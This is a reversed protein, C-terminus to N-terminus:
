RILNRIFEGEPSQGKRYCAALLTAGRDPTSAPNVLEIDCGFLQGRLPRLILEGAKFLGGSYSVPCTGKFELGYYVAKLIDALEEAADEYAELAARDGRLAAEMLVRQLAAIKDRYPQYDREFIDIVDIDRELSFQERVLEYLPGRELRGDAQKSFLEMCRLGLWKCSGEDSFYESWGGAGRAEGRENKGYAISGTGAVINIGPKLLLSGAWAVESDNVLFVQKGAFAQEVRQKMEKDNCTSEGYNPMGFCITVQTDRGSPEEAGWGAQSFLNAVGELLMSVVGDMGVQKYSASGRVCSALLRGTEDALLFATKTGGGDIGIYYDM